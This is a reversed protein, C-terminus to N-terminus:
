SVFTPTRRGQVIGYLDTVSARLGRARVSKGGINPYAPKRGLITEAIYTMWLDRDRQRSEM